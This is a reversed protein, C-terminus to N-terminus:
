QPKTKTTDKPAVVPPPIAEVEAIAAKISNAISDQVQKARTMMSDRSEAAPGCSTFSVLIILSAFLFVKKM